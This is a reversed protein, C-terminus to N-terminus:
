LHGLKVYLSCYCAFKDVGIHGSFDDMPNRCASGLSKHNEKM